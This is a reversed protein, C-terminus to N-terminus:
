VVKTQFMKKSRAEYEFYNSTDSYIGWETYVYIRKNILIIRNLKKYSFIYKRIVLLHIIYKDM